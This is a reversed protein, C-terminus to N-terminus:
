MSEDRRCLELIRFAEKILVSKDVLRFRGKPKGSEKGHGATTLLVFCDPYRARVAAALHFGDVNPLILDAILVHPEFEAALSLAEAADYTARVEYGYGALMGAFADALPRFDDVVLM